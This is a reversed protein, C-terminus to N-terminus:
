HHYKKTFLTKRKSWIILFIGWVIFPISLWQGMNLIMDSEFAEQDNKIFEIFFRATFSCIFFIGTLFGVNKKVDTKWYTFKLIFFTGLYCLAEYLQTPHKPVTEGRNEFIFGWPLSTEVGYIESNFLNGMRIFCATLAIPTVLRDLIWFVNRKSYKRSWLFLAILVGIAGGHSALGGHWVKFIEGLNQSYYDWAYFFVHGFRAGFITGIMIYMLLPDLWQVDEGEHKFMKEMMKFGWLFGLVFMLGYWRVTLEGLFPIFSLDITFIDPNFDWYVKALM